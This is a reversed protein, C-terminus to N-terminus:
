KTDSAKPTSANEARKCNIENEKHIPQSYIPQLEPAFFTYGHAQGVSVSACWRCLKLHELDMSKCMRLM